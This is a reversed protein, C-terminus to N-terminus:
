TSAAAAADMAHRMDAVLETVAEHAKDLDDQNAEIRRVLASGVVVADAVAAMRAATPADSIGFGVGVPLGTMSRLRDVRQGVADVDLSAAGTVGKLSVYYVFGGARECITQMREETSTPAVLFVPDLGSDALLGDLDGMEELPMDVTLVGDVGSELAAKAFEAYGMVEIPNMYGMLVVPTETDDERFRRVMALVDRLGVNHCLARECAQQIVPGDGIPDSFPVGVEVVDAGAAVMGHMLRVTLDPHPDGATIYPILATRQQERLAQFRTALRSM